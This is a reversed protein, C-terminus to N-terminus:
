FGKVGGRVLLSFKSSFSVEDRGLLGRDRLGAVASPSAKFRLSKAPPRYVMQQTRVTHPPGPHQAMGLVKM